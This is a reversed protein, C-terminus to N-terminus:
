GQLDHTEFANEFADAIGDGDTDQLAGSADTAGSMLETSRVGNKQRSIEVCKGIIEKIEGTKTNFNYHAWKGSLTSDPEVISGGQELWVDGTKMNGQAYNTVLKERGQTIVVNGSLYFDGSVSDYEAKDGTFSIPLSKNM